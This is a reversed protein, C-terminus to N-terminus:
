RKFNNKSFWYKRHKVNYPVVGSCMTLHMMVKHVKGRSWSASLYLAFSVLGSSEKLLLYVLIILIRYVMGEHKVFVDYM